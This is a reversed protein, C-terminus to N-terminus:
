LDFNWHVGQGAQEPTFGFAILEDYLDQRTLAPEMALIAKGQLAAQQKWDVLLDKSDVAAIATSETFGDSQLQSIVWSRSVGGTNVYEQTKKVADSKQVHENIQKQHDAKRQAEAEPDM